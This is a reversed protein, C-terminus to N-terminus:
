RSEGIIQQLTLPQGIHRDGVGCLVGIVYGDKKLRVQPPHKDDKMLRMGSRWVELEIQKYHTNFLEQKSPLKTKGSVIDPHFKFFFMRLSYKDGRGEDYMPKDSVAQFEEGVWHEGDKEIEVKQTSDIRAKLEKRHKRDYDAIKQRLIKVKKKEDAM